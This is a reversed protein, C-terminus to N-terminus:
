INALRKIFLEIPRRDLQLRVAIRALRQTKPIYPHSLNRLTRQKFAEKEWGEFVAFPPTAETTWAELVKPADLRFFPLTL